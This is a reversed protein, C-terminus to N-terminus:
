HPHGLHIPPHGHGYPWLFCAQITTFILVINAQLIFHWNALYGSSGESKGNMKGGAGNEKSSEKKNYISRL